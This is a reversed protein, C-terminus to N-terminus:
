LIEVQTELTCVRGSILDTIRIAVRYKGPQFNSLPIGKSIALTHGEPFRSEFESNIPMRSGDPAELVYAVEVSPKGTTPDTEVDYVELYLGLRHRRQYSAKVNPIVKLPGLVFESGRAEDTVPQIVDACILSSTNLSGEKAPPIWFSSEQIGMKESHVDKVLIRLKYRGSPLPIIAQHYTRQKLLDPLSLDGSRSKFSDDLQYVTQGSLATVVAYMQVESEYYGDFGAYMLNRNSLAVTVPVAFLDSSMRVFAVGAEFPLADYSVNARVEEKLEPHKLPPPAQLKSWVALREFPQERYSPVIRRGKLANDGRRWYFIDKKNPDTELVYSGTGTRDVFEISVAQGIGQLYDYEWIEFPLTTITDGGQSPPKEYWGGMPHPDRRNPPGHLVYIRGRDTRWGRFNENAYTVRRYFEERFAGPNQPNPDRRRWFDEIFQERQEETTLKGFVSREEETILIQIESKLWDSYQLERNRQAASLPSFLLAFFIFIANTATRFSM